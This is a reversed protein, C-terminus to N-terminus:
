YFSHKATLTGTQEDLIHARTNAALDLHASFTNLYYPM